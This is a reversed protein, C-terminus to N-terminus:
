CVECGNKRIDAIKTNLQELLDDPAGPISKDGVLFHPTGNVGMKNALQRVLAIEKNVPESDMGAELKEVDLGIKEAVKLATEKNLQGRHSLLAQHIEWYKGQQKAALAIRAAEESGKSLIPLEKFVVRVNKDNDILKKIDSLGRKCYGCNYDFFEVVTVDGDAKGAIPADARKYLSGANESVAKKAKSEADAQMKKELATQVELMLEPNKLLYDRVIKEVDSKQADTFSAAADAVKIAGSAPAKAAKSSTGATAGAAGAEAAGAATSRMKYTTITGLAAAAFLVALVILKRTIDTPAKVDSPTTM